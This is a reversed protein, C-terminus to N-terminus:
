LKVGVICRQNLFLHEKWAQAIEITARNVEADEEANLDVVFDENVVDDFGFSPVSIKLTKYGGEDEVAADIVKKADRSTKMTLFAYAAQNESKDLIKSPIHVSDVEGITSFFKKLEEAPARTDSPNTHRIINSVFIKRNGADQQQSSDRQSPQQRPNTAWTKPASPVQPAPPKPAEAPQEVKPKEPKPKEEEVVEIREKQPIKVYSATDDFSKLPANALLDKKPSPENQQSLHGNLKTSQIQETVAGQSEGDNEFAKDHYMFIDNQVYFKKAQQQGLVFTQAFKRRPANHLSIEGIVQLVIGDALTSSGQISYIRFKSDHFAIEDITKQIDEPGLATGGDHSLVSEKGYYRFAEEPRESLMTYYQRVFARGIDVSSPVSGSLTGDM